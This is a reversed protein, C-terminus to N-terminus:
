QLQFEAMSSPYALHRVVIKKLDKYMYWFTLGVKTMDEIIHAYYLITFFNIEITFFNIEITRSLILTRSFKIQITRPLILM